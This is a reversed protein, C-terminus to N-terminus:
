KLTINKFENGIGKDIIGPNLNELTINEFSNAISNEDRIYIGAFNRDEGSFSKIYSRKFRSNNVETLILYNWNVSRAKASLWNNDLYFNTQKELSILPGGLENVGWYPTSILTNGVVSNNASEYQSRFAIGNVQSGYLENQTVNVNSYAGDYNYEVVISSVAKYIKNKVINVKEINDWSELAVGVETNQVCNGEIIANSLYHGKIAIGGLPLEFGEVEEGCTGLINFNNDKVIIDSGNIRISNRINHLSNGQIRVHSFKASQDLYIGAGGKLGYRYTPKEYNQMNIYNNFIDINKSIIDKSSLYVGFKKLEYFHNVSVDVAEVHHLLVGSGTPRFDGPILIPAIRMALGARKFESNTVSVNKANWIALLDEAANVMLMNNFTINDVINQTSSGGLFILSGGQQEDGEENHIGNIQLGSLSLGSIDRLVLGDTQIIPKINNKSIGIIKIGSLDLNTTNVYSINFQEGGQFVLSEGSNAVDELAVLFEASCDSEAQVSSCYKNFEV